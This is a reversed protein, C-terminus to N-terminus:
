KLSSFSFRGPMKILKELSVCNAFLPLLILKPDRLALDAKKENHCKGTRPRHSPLSAKYYILNLLRQFLCLTRYKKLVLKRM